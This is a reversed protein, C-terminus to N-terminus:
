VYIKATKYHVNSEKLYKESKKPMPTEDIEPLKTTGKREDIQKRWGELM